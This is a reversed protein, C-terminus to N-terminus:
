RKLFKTHRGNVTIFYVGAPLDSVEIYTDSPTKKISQGNINYMKFDRIPSSSIIRIRDTAPNPFVKIKDYLPSDISNSSLSNDITCQPEYANFLIETSLNNFGIYSPESISPNSPYNKYFTGLDTLSGDSYFYEGNGVTESGVPRPEFWSYREVFSQAELYPVALEMFQRNVEISRYKNANFETIWIPLGYLAYVAELHNKFRNFINEPLANPSNQPSSNWDYWHLAIVDMRIDNQFALQNFNDLWGLDAGQRCAPSVLRLGTKMLNEYVAVATAEDCMNNFQGSEGNCNDPENFGLVHTAKYKSQYLVIDDLDNAGGYGWAMPAYERSLDSSGQNNWRYFWRNDMGSIDGATGKKSVWNWPLVRIFSVGSQLSNPLSHIELDEESAIFVQSKGTGDSNVAMTMMYGKKLRFSNINNQMQNPISSGNYIQYLGITTEAGNLNTNSYITLPETALNEPRIICGNDYYNDLRINTPYNAANGDVLLQSFTLNYVAEPDQAELCLWSLGSNFNVTAQNLLPQNSSIHLYANQNLVVTGTSISSAALSGDSIELKNLPNLVISQLPASFVSVGNLSLSDFVIAGSSFQIKVSREFDVSNVSLTNLGLSLPSSNPFYWNGNAVTRVIRFNAGSSPLSTINIQLTQQAGNNGDGMTAATYVYPWSANPGADFLSPSQSAIDVAVDDASLTTVDCNLFLDFDIPHGPDISGIEAAEGSSAHVWNAENFFYADGGDGTWHYVQAFAGFSFFYFALIKIRCM